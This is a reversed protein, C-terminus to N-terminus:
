ITSQELHGMSGKKGAASLISQELHGIQILKDAIAKIISGCIADPHESLKYIVKVAQEALPIWHMNKEDSVGTLSFIFIKKNWLWANFVFKNHCNETWVM